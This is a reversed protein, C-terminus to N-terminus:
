KKIKRSCVNPVIMQEKSYNCGKVPNTLDTLDTLTPWHVNQAHVPDSFGEPGAGDEFIYAPIELRAFDMDQGPLVSRTLRRQDLDQGADVGLVVPLDLEFAPGDSEARRVVGGPAPDRGDMLVRGEDQGHVDDVVDEEAPLDGAAPPPVSKAASRLFVRAMRSRRPSSRGRASGNASNGTETRWIISIALARAKSARMMMMSSGVLARFSESVAWSKSITRPNRSRPQAMTKMEWRISSIVRRASRM